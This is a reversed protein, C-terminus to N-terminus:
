FHFEQRLLLPNWIGLGVQYLQTWSSAFQQFRLTPSLLVFSYLSNTSHCQSPLVSTSGTDCSRVHALGPNFDITRRWVGAVPRKLWLVATINVTLIVCFNMLSAANALFLSGYRLCAVYRESFALTVCSFFKSNPTLVMTLSFLIIFLGSLVPVSTIWFM